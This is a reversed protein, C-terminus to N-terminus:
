RRTIRKGTKVNQWTLSLVSKASIVRAARAMVDITRSVSIGKWVLKAIDDSHDKIDFDDPSHMLAIVLGCAGDVLDTIGMKLEICKTTFAVGLTTAEEDTIFTKGDILNQRTARAFEDISDKSYHQIARVLAAKDFGVDKGEALLQKFSDLQKKREDELKQLEGFGGGRRRAEQNERNWVMGLAYVKSIQQELIWNQWYTLYGTLRTAAVLQKQALLMSSTVYFALVTAVAGLVIKLVDM